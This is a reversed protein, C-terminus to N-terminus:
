CIWDPSIIENYILDYYSLSIYVWIKFSKGRVDGKKRLMVISGIERGKRVGSACPCCPVLTTILDDCTEAAEEEELLPHRMSKGQELM